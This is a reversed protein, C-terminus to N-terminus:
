KKLRGTHLLSFTEGNLVDADISFVIETNNYLSAISQLIHTFALQDSKQIQGFVFCRKIDM